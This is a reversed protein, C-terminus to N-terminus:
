ANRSSCQQEIGHYRPPARSRVLPCASKSFFSVSMKQDVVRGNIQADLRM